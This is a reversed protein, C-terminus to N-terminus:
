PSHRVIPFYILQMMLFGAKQMPSFLPVSKHRIQDSVRFVAKGAVYSLDNSILEAISNCHHMMTFSIITLERELTM